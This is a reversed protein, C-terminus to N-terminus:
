WSSSVSSSIAMDVSGTALQEAAWLNKQQLAAALADDSVGSLGGSPLGPRFTRICHRQFFVSIGRSTSHAQQPPRGAAVVLVEDWAGDFPITRVWFSPVRLEPLKTNRAQQGPTWPTTFSIISSASGSSSSGGGAKRKWGGTKGTKRQKGCSSMATTFATYLPELQKRQLTPTCSASRHLTWPLARSISIILM